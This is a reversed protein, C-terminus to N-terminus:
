GVTDLEITGAGVELNLARPADAATERNNFRHTGLAGGFLEQGNLQVSGMSAKGQIHYEDASGDLYARVTGAGVHMDVSGAGLLDADLTGGAVTIDMDVCMLPEYATVSADTVTLDIKQYSGIQDPLTIVAGDTGAFLTLEWVGDGYESGSVIYEGSLAFDGGTEIAIDGGSLTLDLGHIADLSQRPIDPADLADQRTELWGDVWDTDYEDPAEGTGDEFWGDADQWIDFRLEDLARSADRISESVPHLAGDYYSGYLQGGAAWGGAMMGGGIVLVACCALVLKKM